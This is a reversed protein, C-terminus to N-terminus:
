LRKLLPDRFQLKPKSQVVSVPSVQQLSRKWKGYSQLNSAQKALAKCQNSSSNSQSSCTCSQLSLQASGCLSSKVPRDYISSGFGQSTLPFQPVEQNM